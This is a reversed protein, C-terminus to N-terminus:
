LTTATATITANYSGAPAYVGNQEAAFCVTTDVGATTTTTSRTAVQIKTTDDVFGRYKRLGSAWTLDGNAGDNCASTNTGWTSTSVDTGYASFGFEYASSVSWNEPTGTVAETYDAFYVTPSSQMAPDTDPAVELKYGTGSNTKVNWTAGGTASNQVVSLNPLMTVDSPSTISIGETVSLNVEITDTAVVGAAVSFAPEGVVYVVCLVLFIGVATTLARGIKRGAAAHM